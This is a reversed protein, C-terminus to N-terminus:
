GVVHLAPRSFLTITVDGPRDMGLPSCPTDALARAIDSLTRGDCWATALHAFDVMSGLVQRDNTVTISWQNMAAVEAAVKSADVSLSSLTQEVGTVVRSFLTKYPAAPVLMPLLTTGSVALVCPQRGLFLLNAHWDGLRTTSKPANDNGITRPGRRELLKRTCRFVVM